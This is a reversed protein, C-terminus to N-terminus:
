DKDEHVDHERDLKGMRNAYFFILAVFVYISGQQAFWFGLKYGGLSITNLPEVLIIGFVFSVVFWIALCFAILRLNAKWYDAKQSM